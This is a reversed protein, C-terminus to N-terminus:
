SPTCKTRSFRTCSFYGRSENRRSLRQVSFRVPLATAQLAASVNSQVTAMSLTMATGSLRARPVPRTFGSISVCTVPSSRRM